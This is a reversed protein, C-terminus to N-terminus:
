GLYVVLADDTVEVAPRLSLAALLAAIAPNPRPMAHATM